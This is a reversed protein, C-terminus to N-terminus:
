EIPRVTNNCIQNAYRLSYERGTINNIQGSIQRCCYTRINDYWFIFIIPLIVGHMGVLATLIWWIDVNIAGICQLLILVTMLLAAFAYLLNPLAVLKPNYIRGRSDQLNGPSEETAENAPNTNNGDHSNGITHATVYKLALAQQISDIKCQYTKAAAFLTSCIACLTMEIGYFIRSEQPIDKWRMQKEIIKFYLIPLISNFYLLGILLLVTASTFIRILVLPSVRIHEGLFADVPDLVNFTIAYLRISSILCGYMMAMFFIGVNTYTIYKTISILIFPDKHHEFLIFCFALTTWLCVLLNNMKILDRLLYNVLCQKSLPRDQLFRLLLSSIIPAIVFALSMFIVVCIPLTFSGSKDSVMKEGQSNSSNAMHDIYEIPKNREMHQQLGNGNKFSLGMYNPPLFLISVIIFFIFKTKIKSRKRKFRMKYSDLYKLPVFYNADKLM